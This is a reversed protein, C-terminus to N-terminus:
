CRRASEAYEAAHVVAGAVGDAQRPGCAALSGLGCPCQAQQSGAHFHHCSWCFHADLCSVSALLDACVSRARGAICSCVQEALPVDADAGRMAVRSAITSPDTELILRGLRCSRVREIVANAPTHPDELPSQHMKCARPKPACRRAHSCIGHQCSPACGGDVTEDMALLVLDLNELVTKKEVAGRRAVGRSM